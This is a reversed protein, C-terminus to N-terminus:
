FFFLFFLLFVRSNFITRITATLAAFLNEKKLFFFFFFFWNIDILKYDSLEIEIYALMNSLHIINPKIYARLLKEMDHTQSM